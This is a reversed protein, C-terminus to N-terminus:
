TTSGCIIFKYDIFLYKCQINSTADFSLSTVISMPDQGCYGYNHHTHHSANDFSDASAVYTTDNCSAVGVHSSMYSAFYNNPDYSTNALQVDPYNNYNQPSGGQYEM